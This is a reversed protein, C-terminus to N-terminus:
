LDIPLCFRKKLIFYLANDGCRGGEDIVTDSEEAMVVKDSLGYVYQPLM